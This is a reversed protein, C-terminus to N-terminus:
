NDNNQRKSIIMLENGNIQFEYKVKRLEVNYQHLDRIIRDVYASKRANVDLLPFIRVESSIRLMECISDYHFEYNLNESYLFLFHSSLSIDFSDDPFPIQPLTGFVYKGNEKGHEYTELFQNMANMRIKGLAEVSGIEDWRFKDLNKRTQSIVNDFTIRIRESIQEKSLSYIPDLSIVNGGNMNCISNFSAPGDGCGLIRKKLDVPSLDFMRCYEEYNRGWPVVEDYKFAM